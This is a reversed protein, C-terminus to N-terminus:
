TLSCSSFIVSKSTSFLCCSAWIILKCCFRGLVDICRGLVGCTCVWRHLSLGRKHTCNNLTRYMHVHKTALNFHFVILVHRPCPNLWINNITAYLFLAKKFHKEKSVRCFTQKRSCQNLLFYVHYNSSWGLYVWISVWAIVVVAVGGGM